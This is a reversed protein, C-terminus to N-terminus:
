SRVLWSFLEITVSVLTECNSYWLRGNPIIRFWNWGGGGGDQVKRLNMKINDERKKKTKWITM